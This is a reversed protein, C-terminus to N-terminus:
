RSAGATKVTLRLMFLDGETRALQGLPSNKQVGKQLALSSVEDGRRGRYVERNYAADDAIEGAREVLQAATIAREPDAKFGFGAFQRQVETLRGAVESLTLYDSHPNVQVGRVIGDEFDVSSFRTQPITLSWGKGILRFGHPVSVIQGFESRLPKLDPRVQKTFVDVPADLTVTLLPLAIASETMPSITASPSSGPPLQAYLAPLLVLSALLLILFRRRPAEQL